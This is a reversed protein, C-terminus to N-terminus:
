SYQRATGPGHVEWIDWGAWTPLFRGFVPWFRGFRAMGLSRVSVAWMRARAAPADVAWVSNAGSPPRAPRSMHARCNEKGAAPPATVASRLSPDPGCRCKRWSEESREATVPRALIGQWARASLFRRACNVYAMRTSVNGPPRSLTGAARKPQETRACANRPRPAVWSISDSPWGHNM